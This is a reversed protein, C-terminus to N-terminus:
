LEDKPIEYEIGTEDFWSTITLAQYDLHGLLVGPHVYTDIGVERARKCFAFDESLHREKHLVEDIEHVPAFWYKKGSNDVGVVREFVSREILTFAMGTARVPFPYPNPNSLSEFLERFDTPNGSLPLFAPPYPPPFRKVALGSVIPLRTSLLKELHDPAFTMDSDIFLIHSWSEGFEKEVLEVALNRATVVETHDVSVRGIIDPSPAINFLNGLTTMTIDSWVATAVVVAAKPIPRNYVFHRGELELKRRNEVVTHHKSSSISIEDLVQLKNPQFIDPSIYVSKHQLVKVQPHVFLKFGYRHLLASFCFDEEQFNPLMETVFRDYNLKQQTTVQQASTFPKHCDISYWDDGLWFWEHYESFPRAIKKVASLKMLILNTEVLEAEFLDTKRLLEQYHAVVPRDRQLDMTTAAPIYAPYFPFERTLSVASVFDRNASLLLDVDSPEIISDQAVLLVHSFIQKSPSEKQKTEQYELSEMLQHLIANKGRHASSLEVKMFAVVNPHTSLKWLSSEVRYDIDGAWNLLAVVVNATPIDHEPPPKEPPAPIEGFLDFVLNQETQIVNILCSVLIVICISKLSM